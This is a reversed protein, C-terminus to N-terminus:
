GLSLFNNFTKPKKDISPFYIESASFTHQNGSFRFFYIKLLVLSKGNNNRKSTDPRPTIHVGRLEFGVDPLTVAVTKEGKGEESKKEQM